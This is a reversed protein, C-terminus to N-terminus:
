LGVRVLERHFGGSASESFGLRARRLDNRGSPLGATLNFLQSRMYFRPRLVQPRPNSERRRWWEGLALQEGNAKEKRSPAPKRAKTPTGASKPSRGVPGTRAPNRERRATKEGPRRLTSPRLGCTAFIAGKSFLLNRASPDLPQIRDNSARLFSGVQRLITPPVTTPASEQPRTRFPRSSTVDALKSSLASVTCTSPLKRGSAAANAETASVCPVIACRLKANPALVGHFRILHLRPRPVLAALRQMFELPEM